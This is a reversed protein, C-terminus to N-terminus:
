TSPPSSQHRHQATPALPPALPLLPARPLLRRSCFTATSPRRTTWPRRASRQARRAVLARLRPLLAASSAIYSGSNVYCAHSLGQRRRAACAQAHTPALQGYLSAYCTPYSSCEGSVLVSSSSSSSSPTDMHLCSCQRSSRRVGRPQCNVLMADTADAFVILENGLASHLEEIACLALCRPWQIMRMGSIVADLPWFARRAARIPRAVVAETQPATWYTPGVASVVVGKAMLPHGVLLILGDGDGLQPRECSEVRRGRANVAIEM